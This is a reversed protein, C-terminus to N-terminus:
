LMSSERWSINRSLRKQRKLKKKVQAFNKQTAKMPAKIAFADAERILKVRDIGGEAVTVKRATDLEAEYKHDMEEEVFDAFVLVATNTMGNQLHLSPPLFMDAIFSKYQPLSLIGKRKASEVAKVSSLVEMQIEHALADTWLEGKPHGVNNWQMCYLITFLGVVAPATNIWHIQM